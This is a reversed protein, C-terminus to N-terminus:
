LIYHATKGRGLAIPLQQLNQVTQYPVCEYVM